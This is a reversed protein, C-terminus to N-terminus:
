GDNRFKSNGVFPEQVSNLEFKNRWHEDLKPHFGCLCLLWSLLCSSVPPYYTIGSSQIAFVSVCRDGPSAQFHEFNRKRTRPVDMHRTRFALISMAHRLTSQGYSMVLSYLVGSIM